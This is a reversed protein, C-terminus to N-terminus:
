DAEPSFALLTRAKMILRPPKAEVPYGCEGINWLVYMGKKRLGPLSSIRIVFLFWWFKRFGALSPM